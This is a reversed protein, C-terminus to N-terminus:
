TEAEGLRIGLEALTLESRTIQQLLVDVERAREARVLALLPSDLLAALIERRAPGTPLRARVAGLIAVYAGYESGYREALQNRIASALAPSAGGTGVAIMLEGRQMVAPALFGCARPVDVVNLLVREAEAEEVLAAVTDPDDVAAYALFAGRLDGRQYDRAVHRSIGDAVLQALGSDLTATVLTLKGGAQVCARAKVVAAEGNGVVVCRRGELCVFVPHTRM